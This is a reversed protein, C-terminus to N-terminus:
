KVVWKQLAKFGMEEALRATQRQTSTSWEFLATSYVLICLAYTTVNMQTAVYWM